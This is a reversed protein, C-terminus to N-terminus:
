LDDHHAGNGNTSIMFELEVAPPEYALRGNDIWRGRMACYYPVYYFAEDEEFEDYDNIRAYDELVALCNKCIDDDEGDAATLATLRNGCHTCCGEGIVVCYRSCEYNNCEYSYKYSTPQPDYVPTVIEKMLEGCERCDM